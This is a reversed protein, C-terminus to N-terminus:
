PMRLQLPFLAEEETIEIQGLGFTANQNHNEIELLSV